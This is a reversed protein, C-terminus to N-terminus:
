ASLQEGVEEVRYLNQQTPTGAPELPWNHVTRKEVGYLRCIDTITILGTKLRGLLRIDGIQDELDRAIAWEDETVDTHEAWEGFAREWAGDELFAELENRRYDDGAVNADEYEDPDFHPELEPRDPVDVDLGM